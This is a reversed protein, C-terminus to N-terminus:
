KVSSYFVQKGTVSCRTTKDRHKYKAFQFPQLIIHTGREDLLVTHNVNTKYVNFSRAESKSRFKVLANSM